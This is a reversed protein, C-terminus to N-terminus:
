QVKKQPYSDKWKNYVYLSESKHFWFTIKGPKNENEYVFKPQCGHKCYFIVQPLYDIAILNERGYCNFCDELGNFQIMKM